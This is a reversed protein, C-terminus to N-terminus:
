IHCDYVSVLTDEPISDFLAAFEKEWVGEEKEDSVIAWWGMEGRQYWKGDKIVAFTCIAGDAARQAYEEKTCQYEELEFWPGITDRLDALSKKLDLDDNAEAEKIRKDILERAAALKKNGEQSQYQEVCWDRGKEEWDPSETFERWKRKVKPITNNEFCSAVKEYRAFAKDYAEKRMGEVDINKKLLADGYGPEAAETMLGPRGQGYEAGEKVKFFGAWRGGLLYWDWKYNPNTRRVIKVIEGDGNEVAYGYKHPADDGRIEDGQEGIKPETGFPVVKIEHYDEIFEKFTMLDKKAFEQETYGEPLYHVKARYGKGDNWDRSSWSLGSRCGSGMGVKPAEEPTPDRYFRDDYTKFKNGDKDVYMTRKEENYEKLYEETKDIDQVYEDNNGTCEFQHYPALQKEPNEGIVLVTFHSM